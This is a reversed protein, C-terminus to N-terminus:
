TVLRSPIRVPFKEQHVRRSRPWYTPTQIPVTFQEQHMRRSRAWFYAGAGAAVLLVLVGAGIGALAAVGLGGDVPAVSSTPAATSTGTDAAEDVINPASVAGVSIGSSALASNLNEATAAAAVGAAKDTPVQPAVHGATLRKREIGSALSSPVPSLPTCSVWLGLGVCLRPQVALCPMSQM